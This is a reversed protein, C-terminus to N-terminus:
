GLANDSTRESEVGPDDETISAVVGAIDVSMMGSQLARLLQYAERRMIQRTMKQQSSAVVNWAM